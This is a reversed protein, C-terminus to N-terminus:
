CYNNDIKEVKLYYCTKNENYVLIGTIQYTKDNLEKVIKSIELKKSM